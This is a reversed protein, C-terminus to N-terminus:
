AMSTSRFDLLHDAALGFKAWAVPDMAPDMAPKPVVVAGGGSGPPDLELGVFPPAVARACLTCIDSGLSIGLKLVGGLLDLRDCGGPLDIVTM